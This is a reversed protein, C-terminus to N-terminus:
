AGGELKDITRVSMASFSNKRGFDACAAFIVTVENAENVILGFMLALTQDNIRSVYGRTRDGGDDHGESHRVAKMCAPDSSVSREHM